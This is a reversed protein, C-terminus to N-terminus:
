GDSMDGKMVRGGGSTGIMGVVVVVVIFRPPYPGGQEKEAHVPCPFLLFCTCLHAQQKKKKKM